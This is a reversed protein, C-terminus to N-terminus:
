LSLKECWSCHRWDLLQVANLVTHSISPSGQVSIFGDGAEEQM